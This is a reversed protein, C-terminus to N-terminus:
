VLVLETDDKMMGGGKNMKDKTNSRPGNVM